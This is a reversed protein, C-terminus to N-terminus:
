RGIEEFPGFAGVGVLDAPLPEGDLLRQAAEFEEKTLSGGFGELSGIAEGKLKEKAWCLRWTRREAPTWNRYVDDADEVDAPATVTFGAEAATQKLTDAEMSKAMAVVRGFFEPDTKMLRRLLTVKTPCSTKTRGNKQRGTLPQHEILRNAIERLTDHPINLRAM